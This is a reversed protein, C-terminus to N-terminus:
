EKVIQLIREQDVASVAEALAKFHAKKESPIKYDKMMSIIQDATDYDFVSVCDAINSVAELYQAIPMEEKQSDDDNQECLAALHAKYSRFIALLEPTKAMIEDENDKDGCQELYRAKESLEKAGILRASSKLAHVLVTYNRWDKEAVYREIEDAKADIAGYFEYLTQELIDADGTYKLADKMDIGTVGAFREKVAHCEPSLESQAPIEQVDETCREVLQAPLYKILMAELKKSEIPKALYDTFGAELYMEKAGSVANATLAICPVDKNQNTALEKMTNFTEIGDMGPMRHDLFIMDYKHKTVLEITAQGSMATEIQIGTQKLLGKVVTLNLETDDVVLIKAEPAHLSEKYEALEALSKEYSDNFDGVPEWEVVRQRVTFSFDSGKGYESTVELKTGMLSLLNKVINMGLGTGEITRNKNEEIRQFATFLKPLDETKIGIGTDIVHVTLDIHNESTKKFSLRMTVSGEKTYKVANTLINLICQKIRVDDGFLLNPINKDIDINLALNKDKARKAIMNVLDNVMSSLHYNAPVIEMKGAEIKSFDLIDNVISLLSKGANEIDVAYKKITPDDSERIIMENLGLVANIPTRIEHSMNSLFDSKAKSAAQATSLETELRKERELNDIYANTNDFARVLADYLVGLEDKSSIKLSKLDILPTECNQASTCDIKCIYSDEAAKALLSIPHIIFANARAITIMIIPTGIISMLITLRTAFVISQWDNLMHFEDLLANAFGFGAFILSLAEVLILRSLRSSIGQGKRRALEANIKRIEDSDYTSAFFLNKYKEPLYNFYWYCFLCVVATPLLALGFHFREAGFTVRNGELIALLLNWGNGLILSFGIWVFFTKWASKYWQRFVPFNAVISALLLVFAHYALAHSIMCEFAFFVLVVMSGMAYGSLSTLIMVPVIMLYCQVKHFFWRNIYLDSQFTHEILMLLVFCLISTLPITIKFANNDVFFYSKYDKKPM